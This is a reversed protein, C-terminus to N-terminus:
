SAVSLFIIYDAAIKKESDLIDSYFLISIIIKIFFVLYLSIASNLTIYQELQQIYDSM